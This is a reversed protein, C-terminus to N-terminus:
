RLDDDSRGLRPVGVKAEGDMPFDRLETRPPLVLTCLTCTMLPNKM